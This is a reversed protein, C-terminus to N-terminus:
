NWRIQITKVGVPRFEFFLYLLGVAIEVASLTRSPAHLTRFWAM